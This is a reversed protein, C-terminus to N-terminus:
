LLGEGSMAAAEAEMRALGAAWLAAAIERWRDADGSISSRIHSEMREITTWGDFPVHGAFVATTERHSIEWETYSWKGNKEHSLERAAIIRKEAAEMISTATTGDQAIACFRFPRNRTGLQDKTKFNKM